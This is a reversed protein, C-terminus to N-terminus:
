AGARGFGFAAELVWRFEELSGLPSVRQLGFRSDTGQVVGRDSTVGTRFGSAELFRALDDSWHPNYTPNPYAVHLSDQGTQARIAARAGAIERCAEWFPVQALNVHSVSHGGILHGRRALESIQSWTMSACGHTQDYSVGLDAEIATLFRNQSEPAATTCFRVAAIFARYREENRELDWTLGTVPDTWRTRRTTYLAYRLRLFFPSHREDVCGTVVYFAARCGHRELIPAAVDYNDKMGDDFTFAVARRPLRGGGRLASGIDDVSMVSCNRVAFAVQQEFVAPDVAIAPGITQQVLSTIPQVSHYAVIVARHPGCRAALRVVGTSLM